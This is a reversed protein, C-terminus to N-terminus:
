KNMNKLLDKINKAQKKSVPIFIGEENIVAKEIDCSLSIYAETMSLITMERQLGEFKEVNEQMQKMSFKIASLCEDQRRKIKKMEEVTQM